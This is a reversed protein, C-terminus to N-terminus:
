DSESILSYNKDNNWYYDFYKEFKAVMEPPLPKNKNFNRLILLFRSLKESDENKSTVNQVDIVIEILITVIFSFSAVGIMLVLTMFLREISSKPNYDGLGVTSLTTFMFYLVITLTDTDEREGLGYANYFTFEELGNTTHKTLLFWFTGLFFSLILIVILLRLM